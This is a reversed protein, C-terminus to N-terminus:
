KFPYFDLPIDHQIINNPFDLVTPFLNTSKVFDYKEDNKLYTIELVQPVKYGEILKIDSWNNHHVHVIKHHQNLKKFFLLQRELSLFSDDGIYHVEIVIQDFKKLIKSSSELIANYEDGEIDIKLFMHKENSNGDNLLHDELSNYCIKSAVKVRLRNNMYNFLSNKLSRDFLIKDYIGKLLRDKLSVINETGRLGMQKFNFNSLNFPLQYITPDCLYVEIYHEVVFNAEFSIDNGIGFSYLKTYEFADDIIVYGGDYKNGIRTKSCNLVDYVILQDLIKKIM